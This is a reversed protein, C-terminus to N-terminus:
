IALFLVLVTGILRATLGRDRALCLGSRVTDLLVLVDGCGQGNECQDERNKRAICGEWVAVFYVIVM